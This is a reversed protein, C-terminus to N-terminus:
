TGLLVGSLAPCGMSPGPVALQDGGPQKDPAEWHLNTFTPVWLGRLPFTPVESRPLFHPRRQCKAGPPPSTLAAYISREPKLVFCTLLVPDRVLLASHLISNRVTVMCSVRSCWAAAGWPRCARTESAPPPPPLHPVM